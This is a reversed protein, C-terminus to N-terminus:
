EGKEINLIELLEYYEKPYLRLKLKDINEIHKKILAKAENIVNDRKKLEKELLKNKEELEKLKLISDAIEVASLGTHIEVGDIIIKRVKENM